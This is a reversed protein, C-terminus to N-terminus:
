SFWWKPVDHHRLTPATWRMLVSILSFGFANGLGKLTHAERRLTKLAEAPAINGTYLDNLCEEMQGLRDRSEDLFEGTLSLFIEDVEM